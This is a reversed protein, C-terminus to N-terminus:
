ICARVLHSSHRADWVSHTVSTNGNWGHRCQMGRGKSEVGDVCPIVKDWVSVYTHIYM